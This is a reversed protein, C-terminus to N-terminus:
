GDRGELYRDLALFASTSLLKWSISPDAELSLTAPAAPGSFTLTLRKRDATALGKNIERKTLESAPADPDTQDPPM